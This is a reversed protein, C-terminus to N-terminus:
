SRQVCETRVGRRLSEFSAPRVAAPHGRWAWTNGGNGDRRLEITLEGSPTVTGALNLTGMGPASVRGQLAGDPGKEVTWKQYSQMDLNSARVLWRGSLVQSECPSYLLPIVTIAISLCRLM